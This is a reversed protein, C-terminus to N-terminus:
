HWDQKYMYTYMIELSYNTPLKIKAHSLDIKYLTLQNWTNCDFVLLDM